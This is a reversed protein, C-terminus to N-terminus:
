IWSCDRTSRSVGSGLGTQVFGRDAHRWRAHDSVSERHMTREAQGVTCGTVTALYVNTLGRRGSEGNSLNGEFKSNAVTL